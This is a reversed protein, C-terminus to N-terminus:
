ARSSAEKRWAEREKKVYEEAKVGKWVNRHLGLMYRAYSKPRAKIMVKGKEVDVVLEDGARVGLAERAERPVVVQHKRSVRVISGM